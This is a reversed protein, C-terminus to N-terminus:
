PVMFLQWLLISGTCTMAVFSVFFVKSLTQHLRRNSEGTFLFRMLLTTTVFLTVLIMHVGFLTSHGWRGGHLRVMTEIILVPVVLWILFRNVWKKHLRTNSTARAFDVPIQWAYYVAKVLLFLAVLIALGFTILLALMVTM